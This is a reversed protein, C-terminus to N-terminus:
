INGNREKFEKCNCSYVCIVSVYKGTNKIDKKREKRRTSKYCTGFSGHESEYHGCECLKDVKEIKIM